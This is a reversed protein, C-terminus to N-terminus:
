RYEEKYPKPLPMWADIAVWSYFKAERGMAESYNDFDWVGRGYNTGDLVRVPFVINGISILICQNIYDHGPLRTSCSIWKNKLSADLCEPEVGLANAFKMITNRKPNKEGNEYQRVMAPTVGMKRALESKNLGIQQRCHKLRNGFDSM